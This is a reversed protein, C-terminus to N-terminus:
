GAQATGSSAAPMEASGEAHPREVPSVAPALTPTRPMYTAALRDTCCFLAAVAAAVIWKNAM